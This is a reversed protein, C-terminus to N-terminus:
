LKEIVKIGAVVDDIPINSVWTTGHENVMTVLLNTMTVSKVLANVSALVVLTNPDVTKVKVADGINVQTVDFVEATVTTLIM